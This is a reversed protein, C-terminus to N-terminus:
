FLGSDESIVNDLERDVKIRVEHDIKINMNIEIPKSPAVVEIKPSCGVMLVCTFIVGYTSVIFKSLELKKV